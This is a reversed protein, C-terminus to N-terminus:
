VNPKELRLLGTLENVNIDTTLMVTKTNSWKSWKLEEDMKYFINYKKLVLLFDTAYKINDDDWPEGKLFDVYIHEKTINVNIFPTHYREVLAKRFAFGDELRKNQEM